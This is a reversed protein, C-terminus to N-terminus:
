DLPAAKWIEQANNCFFFLHEITEPNEGCCKCLFNGKSCRDMLLANVPLIGNLCRWIFHKLKPKINMHWVSNWSLTACSVSCGPEARTRRQEEKRKRIKALKYGSKVTYVGTSSIVWYIRDKMPMVSLPIRLVKRRTEEDFIRTIVEMDWEGDKILENVWYVKVEMGERAKVRGYDTDLLWRDDWIHITAGDRVQKRM